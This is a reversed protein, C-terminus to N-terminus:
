GRGSELSNESPCPWHARACPWYARACFAPAALPFSQKRCESMSFVRCTVREAGPPHAGWAACPTAPAMKVRQTVGGVEERGVREATASGIELPFNGLFHCWCCNEHHWNADIASLPNIDKNVYMYKFISPPWTTSKQYIIAQGLKGLWIVQISLAASLLMRVHLKSVFYPWHSSEIYTCTSTLILCLTNGANRISEHCALNYSNCATPHKGM